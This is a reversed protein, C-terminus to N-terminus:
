TLPYNISVVFQGGSMQANTLQVGVNSFPAFLGATNAGATMYSLAAITTFAVNGQAAYTQNPVFFPLGGLVANAGNATVPYDFRADAFVRNGIQTWKANVNALVLGAGSQDTPTWIGSSASALESFSLAGIQANLATLGPTQFSEYVTVLNNSQPGAHGALALSTINGIVNGGFDKLTIIFTTKNLFVIPDGPAISGFLNSQPMKISKGAAANTIVQLPALPLTLQVDVSADISNSSASNAFQSLSNQANYNTIGTFLNAATDIVTPVNAAGTFPNLAALFAVYDANALAVFQGTSAQWVQTGPSQDGVLYYWTAPYFWPGSM